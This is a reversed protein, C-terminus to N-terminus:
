HRRRNFGAGQDIPESAIKPVATERDGLLSHEHRLHQELARIVRRDFDEPPTQNFPAGVDSQGRKVSRDFGQNLAPQDTFM